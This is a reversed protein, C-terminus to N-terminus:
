HALANRQHERRAQAPRGHRSLGALLDANIQDIMDQFVSVKAARGTRFDKPKVIPVIASDDEGTLMFKLVNRERPKDGREGSEAPSHESQIAIENTLVVGAIDRFTLNGPTGSADVSIKRGEAGMQTLLFNSINAPNNADHKPALTRAAQEGEHLTFAGGGIARELSVKQDPSFAIDLWLRNYPEREKILPLEKQGGLM